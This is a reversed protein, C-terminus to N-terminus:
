VVAVVVVRHVPLCHGSFDAKFTLASSCACRMSLGREHLGGAALQGVTQISGYETESSSLILGYLLYSDVQRLAGLQVKIEHFSLCTIPFTSKRSSDRVDNKFGVEPSHPHLGKQVDLERDRARDGRSGKAPQNCIQCTAAPEVGVAKTAGFKLTLYSSDYKRLSLPLRDCDVFLGGEGLVRSEDSRFMSLPLSRRNSFFRQLLTNLETGDTMDMSEVSMFWNTGNFDNLTKVTQVQVHRLLGDIMVEIRKSPVFFKRQIRDNSRFLIVISSTKIPIAKVDVTTKTPSSELHLHTVKSKSTSDKLNPQPCNLIRVYRKCRLLNKQGELSLHLIKDLSSASRSTESSLSSGAGHQADCSQSIM